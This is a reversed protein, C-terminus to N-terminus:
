KTIVRIKYLQRIAFVHKYKLNNFINLYHIFTTVAAGDDLQVKFYKQFKIPQRFFVRNLIPVLM